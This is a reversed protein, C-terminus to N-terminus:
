KEEYISVYVRPNPTPNPTPNTNSRLPTVGTTSLPPTPLVPPSAIGLRLASANM